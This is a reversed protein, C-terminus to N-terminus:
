GAKKQLEAVARRLADLEAAEQARAFIENLVADRKEDDEIGEVLKILAEWRKPHKVELAVPADQPFIPMAPGVAQLLGDSAPKRAHAAVDLAAERRMEGEGTLLWNLNVGTKAIAALAEGGPVNRGMEYKQLVAIHVGIREAFQAQTM